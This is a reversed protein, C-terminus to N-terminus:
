HDTLQDRLERRLVKGMSNRPLNTVFVVEAPRQYDVLREGLFARLTHTTLTDDSRVGAAMVRVIVEFAGPEPIEIEEIQFADVPEGEREERIVWAAMTKPESFCPRVLSSRAQHWAMATM